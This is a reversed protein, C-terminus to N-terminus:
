SRRTLADPWRTILLSELPLDKGGVLGPGSGPQVEHVRVPSGPPEEGSGNALWYRDVKAMRVPAIGRVPHVGVPHVAVVVVVRRTCGLLMAGPTCGCWGLGAADAALGGLIGAGPGRSWRVRGPRVAGVVAM